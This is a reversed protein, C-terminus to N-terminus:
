HQKKVMLRRAQQAVPGSVDRSKGLQKLDRLQIYNLLKMAVPLPTKPNGVLALKVKYHRMWERSGSIVRLVEDNTSRARVWAVVETENTKPSRAAACAVLKNPDRALLWRAERNGLRALKVKEVVSMKQLLIYLSGSPESPTAMSESERILERDFQSVDDGLLASLAASAQDDTIPEPPPLEVEEFAEHAPREIGLFSLVRDIVARGTMPNHGLADVIDPCRLLREQNGAIMELLARQPQGALYAITTDPTAPNLAIIQLADPIERFQEACFSLVAPHLPSQLAADRVREPLQCLSHRAREAVERDEDYHLTFLVSVLEGPPLPLAGGAAMRRMAVPVDRRVYREAEASLELRIAASPAPKEFSETEPSLDIGKDNSSGAPEM